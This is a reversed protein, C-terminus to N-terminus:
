DSLTPTKSSGGMKRRRGEGGLRGDRSIRARFVSDGMGKREKGTDSRCIRVAKSFVELSTEEGGIEGETIWRGYHSCLSGALSVPVLDRGRIPKKWKMIVQLTFKLKRIYVASNTCSNVYIFHKFLAQVCYIRYFHRSNIKKLSRM